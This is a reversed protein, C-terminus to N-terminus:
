SPGAASGSGLFYNERKETGVTTRVGHGPYVDTADPLSLIKERIGALLMGGNGGPLDTRGISGAFLTDGSFVVPVDGDHVLCVSGPSHGPVHEIRFVLGAAGFQTGGALMVDAPPSLVKYEFAFSLNALPDLLMHADRSHICIKAAPFADKVAGNAGIHDGHGHTNVIHTVSLRRKALVSLIEQPDDGPDIVIAEAGGTTYVIYTNVVFQGVVLTEIEM